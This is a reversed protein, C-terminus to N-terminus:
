FKLFYYIVRDILLRVFCYGYLKVVLIFCYRFFLGPGSSKKKKKKKKKRKRSEGIREVLGGDRVQSSCFLYGSGDEDQDDQDDSRKLDSSM